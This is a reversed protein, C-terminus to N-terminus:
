DWLALRVQSRATGGQMEGVIICFTGTFLEWKATLLFRQVSNRYTYYLLLLFQSVIFGSVPSDLIMQLCAYTLCFCFATFVASNKRIGTSTRNM